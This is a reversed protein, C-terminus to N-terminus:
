QHNSVYHQNLTMLQPNQHLFKVVDRYKLHTLQGFHEAIKEILLFDEPYDVTWRHHNLPQECRVEGISFLEPHERIFLTVHERQAPTNAQQHTTVLANHTFIEIDLGDPYTATFANSTYDFHGSLHYNIVSDILEGDSLPCDGTLRIYHEAPYKHACHYYRSLVDPLSGRFCSISHKNCLTEICDDSSDESTAVILQDVLQAQKVRLIQQLLMPKDLLPMMVKGPLRNSSMRAQLIVNIM